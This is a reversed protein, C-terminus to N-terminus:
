CRGLARCGVVLGTDADRVLDDPFLLDVREPLAEVIARSVVLWTAPQPGPLDIVAGALRSRTVPIRGVQTAVPDLQDRVVACRPTPQEPPLDVVAGDPLVFTVTHPTLNRLTIVARGAGILATMGM